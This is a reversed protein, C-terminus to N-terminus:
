KRGIPLSFAIYRALDNKATKNKRLLKPAPFGAKADSSVEGSAIFFVEGENWDLWSDLTSRCTAIASAPPLSVM